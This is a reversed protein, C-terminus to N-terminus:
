DHKKRKRLKYNNFVPNYKKILYKEIELRGLKIPITKLTCKELYLEPDQKTYDQIKSRLKSANGKEHSSIRNHLNSTEGIYVLDKNFIFYLGSERTVTKRENWTISKTEPILGDVYNCCEKLTNEDQINIMNKGVKIEM